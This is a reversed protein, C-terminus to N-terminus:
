CPINEYVGKGECFDCGTDPKRSFVVKAFAFPRFTFAPLSRKGKRQKEKNQKGLTLSFLSPESFLVSLEPEPFSTGEGRLLGATM